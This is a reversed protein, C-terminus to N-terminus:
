AGGADLVPTEPGPVQDGSQDHPAERRVAVFGAGSRAFRSAEGRGVIERVIGAYVTAGPTQGRTVWLGRAIAQQAIAEARLPGEAEQLVRYAADLCTLAGEPRPERPPPAPRPADHRVAFAECEERTAARDGVQWGGEWGCTSCFQWSRRPPGCLVVASIYGPCGEQRCALRYARVDADTLARPRAM